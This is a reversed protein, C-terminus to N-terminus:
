MPEVGGRPPVVPCVERRREKESGAGREEGTGDSTLAREECAELIESWLVAEEATDLETIELTDL